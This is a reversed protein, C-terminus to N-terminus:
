YGKPDLEYIQELDFEDEWEEPSGEKVRVKNRAKCWKSLKKEAKAYNKALIYGEISKNAYGYCDNYTVLFVSKSRDKM